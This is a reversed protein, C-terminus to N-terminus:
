DQLTQRLMMKVVVRCSLFAVTSASLELKMIINVSSGDRCCVQLRGKELLHQVTRGKNIENYNFKGKWIKMKDFKQKTKSVRSM